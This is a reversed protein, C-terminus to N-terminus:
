MGKLKTLGGVVVRVNQAKGDGVRGREKMNLENELEKGSHM